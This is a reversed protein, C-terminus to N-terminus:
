REKPGVTMATADCPCATLPLEVTPGALQHVNTARWHCYASLCPPRLSSASRNGTVSDGCVTWLAIRCDTKGTYEQPLSLGFSTSPLGLLCSSKPCGPCTSPVFHKWCERDRHHGSDPATPSKRQTGEPPTADPEFNMNHFPRPIRVLGDELKCFRLGFSRLTTTDVGDTNGRKPQRM